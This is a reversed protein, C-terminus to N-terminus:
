DYVDKTKGMAMDYEASHEAEPPEDEERKAGGTAKMCAELVDYAFAKSDAEDLGYKAGIAAFDMSSEAQEHPDPAPPPAEPKPPKNAGIPEPAAIPSKKPLFPM